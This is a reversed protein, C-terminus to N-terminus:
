NYIPILCCKCLNVQITNRKMYILDYKEQNVRLIESQLEKNQKTLMEIRKKMGDIQLKYNTEKHKFSKKMDTVKKRLEKLEQNERCM